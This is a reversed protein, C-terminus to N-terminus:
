SVEQSAAENGGSQMYNHTLGAWSQKSGQGKVAGCINWQEKIRESSFAKRAGRLTLLASGAEASFSPMAKAIFFHSFLTQKLTSHHLTLIRVRLGHFRDELHIQPREFENQSHCAGWISSALARSTLLHKRGKLLVCSPNWRTKVGESRRTLSMTVLPDPTMWSCCHSWCETSCFNGSCLVQCSGFREAPVQELCSLSFYWKTQKGENSGVLFGTYVASQEEVQSTHLNSSCPLCRSPKKEREIVGKDWRVKKGLLQQQGM